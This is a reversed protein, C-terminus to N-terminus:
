WGSRILVALGVGTVVPSIVAFGVFVVWLERTRAGRLQEPDDSARRWFATRPLDNAIIRERTQRKLVFRWSYTWGLAGLIAIGLGDWPSM